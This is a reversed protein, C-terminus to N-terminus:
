KLIDKISKILWKILALSYLNYRFILFMYKNKFNLKNFKIYKLSSSIQKDNVVSKLKKRYKKSFASKNNVINRLVTNYYQFYVFSLRRNFENYSLNCIEDCKLIEEIQMSLNKVVKLFDDRYGKSLGSNTLDYYYLAKDIIKIQNCKILFKLNFVLDEAYSSNVEFMINNKIIVDRLYVSRWVSGMITSQKNFSEEDQPGIMNLILNRKLTESNQNLNIDLDEEFCCSNKITIYKCMVMDLKYKKAEDILNKYLSNDVYDDADVFGIYIGKSEKIGLNRTDSVGTNSKNIVRIRIDNKALEELVDKSSDSSGDNILLIEIDELTQNTLSKICRSITKESNYVPVIISVIPKKNNSNSLAM